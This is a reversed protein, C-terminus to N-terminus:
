ILMSSPFKSIEWSNQVVPHLLINRFIKSNLIQFFGISTSFWVICWFYARSRLNLKVGQFHSYSLLPTRSICLAYIHCWVEFSISRCFHYLILNPNGWIPLSDGFPKLIPQCGRIISQSDVNKKWDASMWSLYSLFIHM